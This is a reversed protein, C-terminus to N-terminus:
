CAVRIMLLTGKTSARLLPVALTRRIDALVAVTEPHERVLVYARKRSTSATPSGRRPCPRCKLGRRRRVSRIREELNSADM